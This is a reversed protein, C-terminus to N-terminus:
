FNTFPKGKLKYDNDSLKSSFEVRDLRVEIGQPWGEPKIQLTKPYSIKELQFYDSYTIDAAGVGTATTIRIRQPRLRDDLGIYTKETGNEAV